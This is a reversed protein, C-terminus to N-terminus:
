TTFSPTGLRGLRRSGVGVPTPLLTVALPPAGGQCTLSASGRPVRLMRPRSSGTTWDPLGLVGRDPLWQQGDEIIADTM